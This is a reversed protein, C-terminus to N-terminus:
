KTGLVAAVIGLAATVLALVSKILWGPISEKPTTKSNKWKEVKQLREEIQAVKGNTKRTEKLTDESIQKTDKIESLLMEWAKNEYFRDDDKM